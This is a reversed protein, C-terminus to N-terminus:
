KLYNNPVSIFRSGNMAQAPLLIITHHADTSVVEVDLAGDVKQGEGPVVSYVKSRDVFMSVNFPEITVIYESSFQGLSVLCSLRKRMM